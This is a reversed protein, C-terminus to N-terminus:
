RKENEGRWAAAAAMGGIKSVNGNRQSIGSIRRRRKEGNEKAAAMGIGGHWKVSEASASKRWKEKRRKM